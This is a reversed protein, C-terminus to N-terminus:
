RLTTFAAGPQGALHVVRRGRIPLDRRDDAGGAALWIYRLVEAVDSIAHNLALAAVAYATSRDDFGRVGAGFEIRRYEMGVLPYLRRGRSFTEALMEDLHAPLDGRGPRFGYFVRRIRPTASALYRDFDGAFRAEEADSRATALPDNARALLHAVLGIRYAVENFPRHQRISEVAETLRQRLLRDLQGSGDANQEFFDASTARGAEEIGIAFADRNRVLQRYLDPPALRAGEFAIDHVQRSTWGMALGPLLVLLACAVVSTRARVSSPPM